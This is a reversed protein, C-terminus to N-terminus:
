KYKINVMCNRLHEVTVERLHKRATLEFDFLIISSKPIKDRLDVIIRSRNSPNVHRATKRAKNYEGELWVIDVDDRHVEEVSGILPEKECNDCCCSQSGKANRHTRFQYM